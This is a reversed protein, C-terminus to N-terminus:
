EDYAEAYVRRWISSNEVGHWSLWTDDQEKSLSILERVILRSNAGYLKKYAEKGKLPVVGLESPNAGEIGAADIIPASVKSIGTEQIAFTYYERKNGVAIPHTWKEVWRRAAELDRTAFVVQSNYSHIVEYLKEEVKSIKVRM